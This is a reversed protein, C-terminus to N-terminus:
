DLYLISLYIGYVAFWGFFYSYSHSNKSMDGLGTLFSFIRECEWRLQLQEAQIAKTICIQVSYYEHTMSSDIIKLM